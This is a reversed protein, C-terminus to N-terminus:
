SAPTESGSPGPAESDTVAYLRFGSMSEPLGESQLWAPVAGTLLDNYFGVGPQTSFLQADWAPCLLVHDVGREVIMRRVTGEDESLMLAARIGNDMRHYPAAVFRHPTRYALEPGIDPVALILRPRSGLGADSGLYGVLQSFSCPQIINTAAEAGMAGPARAALGNVLGGLFLPGGLLAVSTSARLLSRRFGVSAADIRGLLVSLLGVIGFALLVATYPFYRIQRVTLVLYAALLVAVVSWPRGSASRVRSLLFPLALVASGGYGVVTGWGVSGPRLPQLEELLSWYRAWVVPDGQALPDLILGPFAVVLLPLVVGAAAIGVGLRRRWGGDGQHELIKFVLLGAIAASLHVVSVRDYEVTLSYVGRETLVALLTTLAAGSLVRSGSAAWPEGNRVWLVALLASVLTVSILFEVSVLLGFGMLGGMLWATRSSRPEALLRVGLGVVGIFTLVFLMHHDARGPLAYNLFGPQALLVAMALPRMHRGALPTVAWAFLLFGCLALVPSLFFGAWYLGRTWGMFPVLPAAGLIILLDVPRTWHSELGEPANLRPELSDFWARSEVLDQVRLLRTFSDPDIQNGVLAQPVTTVILLLLIAVFALAFVIFLLADSAGPRPSTSQEPM